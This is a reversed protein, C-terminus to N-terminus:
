GAGGAFFRIESLGSVDSGRSNSDAKVRPYRVNVVKPLSIVQGRYNYNGPAKDFVFKGVPAFAQNDVSRSLEVDKFGRATGDYGNEYENFNWVRFSGIRVAKGFDFSISANTDATGNIYGSNWMTGGNAYKDSYAKTWQIEKTAKEDSQNQEYLHEPASM